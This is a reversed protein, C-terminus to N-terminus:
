HARGRHRPRFRARGGQGSTHGARQKADAHTSGGCFEFRQLADPDACRARTEQNRWTRRSIDCNESELYIIFNAERINKYDEPKWREDDDKGENEFVGTPLIEILAFDEDAMLYSELKEKKGVDEGSYLFALRIIKTITQAVM